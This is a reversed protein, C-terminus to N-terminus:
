ASRCRRRTIGVLVGEVRRPRHKIATNSGAFRRRVSVSRSNADVVPWRAPHGVQRLRRRRDAARAVERVPRQLARDDDTVDRAARSARLAGHRDDCYYRDPDPCPNFYEGNKAYSRCAPRRRQIPASGAGAASGSASGAASGAAAARQRSRRGSRAARRHRHHPASAAAPARDGGDCSEPAEEAAGEAVPDGRGRRHAAASRLSAIDSRRTPMWDKFLGSAVDDQVFAPDVGDAFGASRSSSITARSTAAGFAPFALNMRPAQAVEPRTLIKEVIADDLKKSIDKGLLSARPAVVQVQEVPFIKELV